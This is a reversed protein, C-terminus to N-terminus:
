GHFTVFFFLKVRHCELGGGTDKLRTLPRFVFENANTSRELHETLAHRLHRGRRFRVIIVLLRTSCAPMSPHMIESHSVSSRQGIQRFRGVDRPMVPPGGM